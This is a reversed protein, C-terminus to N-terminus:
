PAREGSAAGGCGDGGADAGRQRHGPQGAGAAGGAGGAVSLAISLMYVAETTYYTNNNREINRTM